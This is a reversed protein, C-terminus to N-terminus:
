HFEFMRSYLRSSSRSLENPYLADALRRMEHRLAATEEAFGAQEVDAPALFDIPSLSATEVVRRILQASELEDRRLRCDARRRFLPDVQRFIREKIKVYLPRSANQVERYSEGIQVTARVFEFAGWRYAKRVWVASWGERLAREICEFYEGQTVGYLNIDPSYLLKKWEYSVVPLGFLALERGASSWANLVVDTQDALDYLSISEAPWNVAANAPLDQLAEELAAAHQSKVGERRNPFERPHVRIVLFLDSRHQRFGAVGAGM